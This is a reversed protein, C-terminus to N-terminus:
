NSILRYQRPGPPNVDTHTIVGNAPATYVALPNFDSWSAGGNTSYQVRYSRSPVGLFTATVNGGSTTSRVTNPAGTAPAPPRGVETVTVSGSVTHGGPGDSLTYTFSGGGSNNAPATYVVYNGSIAVTAGGPTANGVATISLPDIDPDTDNALLTAKLVKAVTTDNVRTISDAGAVPPSNGTDVALEMLL